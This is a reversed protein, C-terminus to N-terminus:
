IVRRRTEWTALDNYDGHGTAKTHIAERLDAHEPETCVPTAWDCQRCEIGYTMDAPTRDVLTFVKGGTVRYPRRRIGSLLAMFYLPVFFHATGHIVGLLILPAAWGTPAYHTIGVLLMPFQWSVGILVFM